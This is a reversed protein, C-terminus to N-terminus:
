KLEKIRQELELAIQYQKEAVEKGNVYYHTEGGYTGSTSFEIM